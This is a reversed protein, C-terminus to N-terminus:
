PTLWGGFGLIWFEKAITQRARERCRPSVAPAVGIGYAPRYILQDDTVWSTKSPATPDNPDCGRACFVM